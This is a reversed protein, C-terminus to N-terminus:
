APSDLTRELHCYLAELIANQDNRTEPKLLECRILGDIETDRLEIVFCRMGDRRRERHRRMREAAPTPSRPTMPEGAVIGADIETQRTSMSHERSNAMPGGQENGVLAFGEPPVAYIRSM